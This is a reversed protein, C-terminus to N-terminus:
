EEKVAEGGPKAIKFFEEDDCVYLQSWTETKIVAFDGHTKKATKVARKIDTDFVNITKIKTNVIDKEDIDVFAATIKTFKVTRQM